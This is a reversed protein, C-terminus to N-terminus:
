QPNITKNFDWILSLMFYRRITNYNTQTIMSNTIDRNYGVNRNLLDNASLVLQLNDAKLFKKRLSANWLLREFSTSFSTAALYQYSVDTNIEFKLPLMVSFSGNTNFGWGSNDFNEQLSYKRTTYNPNMSARISYRAPVFKQATLSFSYTNSQLKNLVSNVYSYSNNADVTFNSELDADIKKLKKGLFLFLFARSSREHELNRYKFISRGISDVQIDNVIPNSTFNYIANVYFHLMTSRRIARYAFDFRNSFSPKLDPNGEIINLPDNNIRVPQVQDIAPLTNSGEYSIRINKEQSYEHMYTARPTLYFFDRNYNTKTFLDKERFNLATVQTGFNFITKGKKYNFNAGGRHYFQELELSNSYLSDLLKYQGGSGNFSKRDAKGNNIGAGYNLLLFANPSLPESYSVNGNLQTGDVRSTKYQDILQVSDKDFYSISSFLYGTVDNNINSYGVKASITRGPKYFKKSWFVGGNFAHQDGDISLSRRSSNLLSSDGVYTAESFTSKNKSNKLSGDAYLKLSSLSDIKWEYTVNMKQRFVHNNFQQNSNSKLINDPLNNQIAVDKTGEVTMDGIKYNGNIAQKDNNWKNDYHIGGTKATPIGVGDYRGDFSELEDWGGSSILVGEGQMEINSSAYKGNDQWGLDIEGTNGLTGYASIKRKGKFSNIMAQTNYYGDTGGGAQIKGFYGHKKDEKLQINLTKEKKGDDIGVFAAQDSKKDYLQVKDVMDARINRTVLVPDDGFFEEGDVLVKKVSQGMATIKGDKDVQLGPLQRLLDEVKANPEVKIAAANYETTDGNIRILSANGRVIVEALVKSKLLMPIVGFDKEHPISDTAFPIVNDAYGPYSIWLIFRGPPLHDLVFTGEAGTWVFKLLTSDTANLVAVAGTVLKTGAGAETIAGKVTFQPLSDTPKQRAHVAFTLLMGLISALLPKLM